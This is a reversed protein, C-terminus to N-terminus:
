EALDLEVGFLRDEARMLRHDISEVREEVRILRYDISEVREEVRSLRTNMDYLTSEIRELRANTNSHSTMMLAGLMVGVGIIAWFERSMVRLYCLSLAGNVFQHVTAKCVAGPMGMDPRGSFLM